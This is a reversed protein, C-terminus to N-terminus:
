VNSQTRAFNLDQKHSKGRLGVPCRTLLFIARADAFRHLFRQLRQLYLSSHDEYTLLKGCNTTDHSKEQCWPNHLVLDPTTTSATYDGVHLGQWRRINGAFCLEMSEVLGHASYERHRFFFRELSACSFFVRSPFPRGLFDQRDGIRDRCSKLRVRMAM